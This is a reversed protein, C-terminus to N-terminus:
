TKLYITFIFDHKQEGDNTLDSLNKKHWRWNASRYSMIFNEVVPIRKATQVRWSPGNAKQPDTNQTAYLDILHYMWIWYMFRWGNEDMKPVHVLLQVLWKHGLEPFYLWDSQISWLGTVSVNAQFKLASAPSNVRDGVMRRRTGQLFKTKWAAFPFRPEYM